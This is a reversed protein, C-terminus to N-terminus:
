EPFGPPVDILIPDHGPEWKFYVYEIRSAGDGKVEFKAQWESGRGVRETPASNIAEALFLVTKEVDRCRALTGPQTCKDPQLVKQSSFRMPKFDPQTFTNKTEHRRGLAVLTLECDKAPKDDVNQLCVCINSASPNGSRILRLVTPELRPLDHGDMKPVLDNSPPQSLEQSVLLKPPQKKTTDELAGVIEINKRQLRRWLVLVVAATLINTVALVVAILAAVSLSLLWGWFLVVMGGLAAIIWLFGYKQIDYKVRDGYKTWWRKRWNM